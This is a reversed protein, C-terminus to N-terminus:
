FPGAVCDVCRAVPEGEKPEAPHASSFSLRVSPVYEQELHCYTCVAESAVLNRTVPQYAFLWAIVAVTFIAGAVVIFRRSFIGLFSM